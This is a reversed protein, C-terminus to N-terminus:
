GPVLQKEQENQKKNQEIIHTVILGPTKVFEIRNFKKLDTDNSVGVLAPFVYRELQPRYDAFNSQMDYEVFVGKSPQADPFQQKIARYDDIDLGFSVGNGQIGYYITIKEM